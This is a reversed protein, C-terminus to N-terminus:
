RLGGTQIILRTYIKDKPVYAHPLFSLISEFEGQNFRSDSEIHNSASNRIRMVQQSKIDHAQVSQWPRGSQSCYDRFREFDHSSRFERTSYLNRCVPRPVHMSLAQIYTLM